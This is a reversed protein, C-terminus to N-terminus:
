EISKLSEVMSIRKILPTMLINVIFTFALTFVVSYIFSTPEIERAFMAIDTEVTNIIFGDLLVGLFLGVVIGIASLVINERFIYKYVEMDYFGLVRITAIERVRESININTLNYLVVAALAGASILMVVVVISLSSLSDSSSKVINGTFNVAVVGDKALWENAIANELDTNTDPINVYAMNVMLPNGFAKEYVAPSLYLYNELYNETIAGLVVEHSEDDNYIRITDGVKLGLSNAVKESLVAGAAELNIAEGSSRDQLHIFHDIKM